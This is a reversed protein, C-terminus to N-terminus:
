RAAFGPRSRGRCPAERGHGTWPRGSMFSAGHVPPAFSSLDIASISKDATPATTETRAAAAAAPATMRVTTSCTTRLFCPLPPQPHSQAPQGPQERQAERGRSFFLLRQGARAPPPAIRLHGARQVPWQAVLFLVQVGQLALTRTLEPFRLDYCILLGCLTDDLPFVALHDGAQFYVDEEMPSFLHTKDYSGVLAGQRDFAMATNYRKGERLCAVSGAVLNVGLERALGGCLAATRQGDPDALEDLGEKPFFGTNWLEPLLIVDPQEEKAAQRVLAEAQRFNEEPRAFAVDMQICTIRM